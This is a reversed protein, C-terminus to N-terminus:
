YTNGSGTDIVPTTTGLYANGTADNIQADTQFYLGTNDYYLKNGGIRNKLVLASKGGLGMSVGVQQQFISNGTIENDRVVPSTYPGAPCAGTFEPIMAIGAYGYDILNGDLKNERTGRLVIGTTEIKRLQNQLIQNKGSGDYVHIGYDRIGQLSNGKILNDSNAHGCISIGGVSELVTNDLLAHAGLVPRSAGPFAIVYIGWGTLNHFDSNKVTAALTDSAIVGGGLNEFDVGDVTLYDARVTNIGAWFGTIRGPGLIRVNSANAVQIGELASTGSLTHGNLRITVGGVPAYLAVWGTTCHLDATLTISTTVTDGCALAHARPHWALLLALALTLLIKM